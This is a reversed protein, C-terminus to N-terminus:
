RKKSIVTVTDGVRIQGPVVIRWHVGFDPQVQEPKLESKLVELVQPDGVIGTQQDITVIKCRTCRKMFELEVEGIRLGKWSEEAWADESGEIVINPRFRNMPLPQSLHRNLERLSTETTVLLQAQDAFALEYETGRPTQRVRPTEKRSQFLRASKGLANSVFADAEPGMSLAEVEDRWVKVIGTSAVGASPPTLRIKQQPSKLLLDGGEKHAEILAMAPIQRQTLFKGDLDTIVFERDGEPGDDRISLETVDLGKLSKVPYLHLSQVRM